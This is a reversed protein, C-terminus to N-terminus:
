EREPSALREQRTKLGLLDPSLMWTGLGLSVGFWLTALRILLTAAAAQAQSLHALLVLMGAISAEAAGLGGPLTSVAGIVTSFALIFIALGATHTNAPMGLGWLILYFGVGEGLWSLSGLSVALLTSRPRFLIFAGEYFQRLPPVLRDLRRLRDLWSLIGLVLSRMQSIIIGGLLLLGVSAFAPWYQPYALVGSTSLILVALGDSIREALIISVGRAIPLGSKQNVWIAKLVEGVKGPTVALPFGAVFLRFSQKWSLTSVGVLRLYYHWKVFRLTYNFLTLLLALPYVRWDFDQVVQGVQRIDGFLALGLFVVCGLILGLGLHQRLNQSPSSAYDANTTM